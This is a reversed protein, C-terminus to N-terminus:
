DAIQIIEYSATIGSSVTITCSTSSKSSLYAGGGYGLAWSTAYSNDGNGMNRGSNYSNTNILVIYKSPDLTTGLSITTTSSIVEHKLVKMDSGGIKYFTSGILVGPKNDQITFSVSEGNVTLDNNVTTFLFKVFNFKLFIYKILCYFCFFVFGCLPYYTFYLAIIPITIPYIFKLSM